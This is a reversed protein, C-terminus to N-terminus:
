AGREFSALIEEITRQIKPTQAPAVFITDDGAITGLIGDPRANDLHRAVLSASGAATHIVITSGNHQIDLVLDQLSSSTVPAANDDPLRYVTRGEADIAKVAGLKRLDRSITSQTVPYGHKELKERLEDQTSLSGEDLLRRLAGLRTRGDPSGLAVSAAM